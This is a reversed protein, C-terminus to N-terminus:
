AWEPPEEHNEHHDKFAPDIDKLKARAGPTIKFRELDNM